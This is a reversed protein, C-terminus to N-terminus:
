QRQEPSSPLAIYWCGCGGARTCASLPLNPLDDVEYSLILTRCAPCADDEIMVGAHRVGQQQATLKFRENRERIEDQTTAAERGRTGQQRIHHTERFARSYRRVDANCRCIDPL